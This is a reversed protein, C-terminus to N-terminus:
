KEAGPAPPSAARQRRLVQYSLYADIGIWAVALWTAMALAKVDAIVLPLALSTGEKPLVIYSWPMAFLAYALLLAFVIIRVVALTKM